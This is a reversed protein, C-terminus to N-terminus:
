KPQADTCSGGNGGNGGNGGSQCGAVNEPRACEQNGNNTVETTGPPCTGM